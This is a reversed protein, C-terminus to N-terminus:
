RPAVVVERNPDNGISYTMLDDYVEIESHVQKREAAPMADLHVPQGSMQVDRATKRVLDSLIVRRRARYDATDVTVEVYNVGHNNLYFECLQQLANITRGHKGILLGEKDTQCDIYVYKSTPMAVKLTATIGLQDLVNQLYTALDHVVAYNKDFRTQPRTAAPRQTVPQAAEGEPQQEPLTAQQANSVAQRKIEVQAPKKFLGWFGPQPQQLIKIQANKRDLQLATLGNEIAAALTDGKYKPM